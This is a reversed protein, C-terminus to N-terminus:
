DGETRPDMELAEVSTRTIPVFEGREEAPVASDTRIRHLAYAGLLLLFLALLLPFNGPGMSYMLAGILLPGVTAGIGNLLLLGRTVAMISGESMRDHTQAVSLAYLAFSLGGYLAAFLNLWGGARSGVLFMLGAMLAGALCVWLLVRRRDYRDSLHGIPWQLLAGGIITSAIFSAVQRDELGIDLVYVASLGWFAGTILGSSLSGWAGVYSIDFLERLPMKPGSYLEPQHIRTLALPILGLCFLIAVIAFSGLHEAGYIVILFQGAGLAALSVMMYVAFLQGRRQNVAENLWSEIVMYLGLMAIGHILRLLGWFWPNVVMGHLLAVVAATASLTTFARIHGVRAILAPCLYSGVIYGLYFCAMILGITIETYGETSARLGLLTGLLGSGALLVGMGILLSFVSYIVRIM